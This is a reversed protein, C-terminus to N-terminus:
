LSAQLKFPRRSGRRERGHDGYPPPHSPTTGITQLTSSLGLIQPQPAANRAATAKTMATHACIRSRALADFSRPHMSPYSQSPASTEKPRGSPAAQAITSASLDLPSISSYRTHLHSCRWGFLSRSGSGEPPEVPRTLSCLAFFCFSVSPFPACRSSVGHLVM